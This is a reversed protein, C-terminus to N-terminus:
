HYIPTAYHYEEKIKINKSDIKTWDMLEKKEKRKKLEFNSYNIKNKLM